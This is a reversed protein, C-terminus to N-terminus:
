KQNGTRNDGDQEHVHASHGSLDEYRDLSSNLDWTAFRELELGRDSRNSKLSVFSPSSWLPNDELTVCNAM